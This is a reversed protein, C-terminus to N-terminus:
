LRSQWQKSWSPIDAAKMPRDIFFGQGYDCGISELFDLQEVTEVGEAIVRKGLSHGVDVLSEVISADGADKTANALFLRDIKLIDVPLKKLRAMSSYGKGFDDVAITVGREQLATLVPIAKSEDILAGETIEVVVNEPDCSTSSICRDFLEVFGQFKLLIPSVNIGIKHGSLGILAWRQLQALAEQLTWQTLPIILQNQETAPIFADPLMQGREPHNWRILAEFGIISGDAIRIVPQYYLEFQQQDIAHHLEQDLYRQVQLQEQLSHDFVMWTHRGAKKASYLALDASALLRESDTGDDPYIAVGISVSTHVTLGDIEYPEAIIETVQDVRFRLMALDHSQPVVMVFEDGGFRAVLDNDGLSSKLRNTVEILLKDGVSHGFNDNVNKFHDLDLFLVALKTGDRQATDFADELNAAFCVRNPLKTLADHLAMYKITQEAKKRETIDRSTGRYGQFTGRADFFPVGSISRHLEEGNPATSRYEFDHFPRRANLDAVHECWEPDDDVLVDALDWRTRGLVQAQTFGSKSLSDSLFTFRHEADTEWLWHAATSLFGELRAESEALAEKIQEHQAINRAVGLLAPRGKWNIRVTVTEVDVSTGDLRRRRFKQRGVVGDKAFLWDNFAKMKSQHEPAVLDLMNREVLDTLSKAGFQMLASPNAYVVRNDQHIIIGDAICEVLRGLDQDNLQLLIEPSEHDRHHRLRTLNSTM